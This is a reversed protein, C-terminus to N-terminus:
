MRLSANENSLKTNAAVLTNSLDTHRQRQDALEKRLADMTLAMEFMRDEENNSPNESPNETTIITDSEMNGSRGGANEDLSPIVQHDLESSM